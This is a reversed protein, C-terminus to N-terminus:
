NSLVIGLMAVMFLMLYAYFSPMSDRASLYYRAYLIILLGIGLILLAFLYALGDLHLEINLGLVPIWVLSFTDVQGAFVGATQQILIVLAAFPAVATAWACSTRGLRAALLPAMIGLIPLLLIWFVNM